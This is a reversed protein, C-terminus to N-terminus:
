FVSFSAGGSIGSTRLDLLDEAKELVVPAQAQFLDKWKPRGHGRVNVRVSFLNLRSFRDRPKGNDDIIVRRM